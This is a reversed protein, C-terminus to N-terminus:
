TRLICVNHAYTLLSYVFEVKFIKRRESCFVRWRNPYRTLTYERANNCSTPYGLTCCFHLLLRVFHRYRIASKRWNAPRCPPSPAATRQSVPRLAVPRAAVTAMTHAAAIKAHPSRVTPLLATLGLLARVHNETALSVHDHKGNVINNIVGHSVGLMAGLKRQSGHKAVMSTVVDMTSQEMRGLGRIVDAVSSYTM